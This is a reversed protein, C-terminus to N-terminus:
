GHPVTPSFCRLCFKESFAKAIFYQVSFQWAVRGSLKYSPFPKLIEDGAVIGPQRVPVPRPPHRVPVAAPPGPSPLRHGDTGGTDTQGEMGGRERGLIQGCQGEAAGGRQGAGHEAGASGRM